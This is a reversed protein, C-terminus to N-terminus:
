YSWDIQDREKPNNIEQAHIVTLVLEPYRKQKGVPPRIVM